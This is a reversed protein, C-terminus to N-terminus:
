RRRVPPHDGQPLRSRQLDRVKLRRVHEEEAHRSREVKRMRRIKNGLKEKEKKIHEPM